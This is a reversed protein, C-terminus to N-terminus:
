GIMRPRVVEYIMTIALEHKPPNKQVAHAYELYLRLRTIQNKLPIPHPTGSLMDFKNDFQYLKALIFYLTRLLSKEKRRIVGSLSSSQTTITLEKVLGFLTLYQHLVIKPDIHKCIHLQHDQRCDKQTNQHHSYQSNRFDITINEVRQHHHYAHLCM